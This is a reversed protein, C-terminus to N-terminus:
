KMHSKIKFVTVKPAIQIETKYEIFIKIWCNSYNVKGVAPRKGDESSSSTMPTASRDRLGKVVGDPPAATVLNNDEQSGM